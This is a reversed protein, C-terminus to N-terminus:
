PRKPPWSSVIKKVNSAVAEAAYFYIQIKAENPAIRKMGSTNGMSPFFGHNVNKPKGISDAWIASLYDKLDRTFHDRNNYEFLGLNPDMIFFNGPNEWGIGIVHGCTYAYGGIRKYQNLETFPINMKEDATVDKKFYNKIGGLLRELFLKQAQITDGYHKAYAGQFRLVSALYTNFGEHKTADEGGTIYSSIWATTIGCCIGQARNKNTGAVSDHGPLWKKLGSHYFAGDIYGLKNGVDKDFGDGDVVLKWQGNEKRYHNNEISPAANFGKCVTKKVNRCFVDRGYAYTGDQRDM